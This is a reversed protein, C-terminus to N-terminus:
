WFVVCRLTARSLRPRRRHSPATAPPRAVRARQERISEYGGWAIGLACLLGSSPASSRISSGTPRPCCSSCGTSSCCRRQARGARRRDPEHRDQQRAPAPLRAAGGRRALRRDDGAAGLPHHHPRAVREGRDLGGPARGVPRAGRRRRVVQHRVHDGAAGPRQHRQRARRGPDAPAARAPQRRGRRRGTAAQEDNTATAMLAGRYQIRPPPTGAASRTGRDNLAQLDAGPRRGAQARHREHSFRIVVIGGPEVGTM